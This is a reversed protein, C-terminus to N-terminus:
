YKERCCSECNIMKKECEKKEKGKQKKIKEACILGDNDAILDKISADGPGFIDEIEKWVSALVAPIGGCRLYIECALVCHQFKDTVGSSFKYSGVISKACKIWKVLLILLNLEVSFLGYPDLYITPNNSVYSYFNVDALFGIPDESIFRGLNSDLYRARYFYLGDESFERGTYGYINNVMQTQGRIQGWAGYIYYNQVTGGSDTMERISGLGDRFYYYEAGARDMMVPEDIGIGHLYDTDVGGTTEKVIYEDNYLYISETGDASKRVRNGIDDYHWQHM